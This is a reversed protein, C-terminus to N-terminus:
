ISTGAQSLKRHGYVVYTRWADVGNANALPASVILDALGDGNFDGASSVSYGSQDSALESLLAFGGTGATIASLDVNAMSPGGLVVPRVGTTKKKLLM